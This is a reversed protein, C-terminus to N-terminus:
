KEGKDLKVCALCERVGTDRSRDSADPWCVADFVDGCGPCKVGCLGCIKDECGCACDDAKEGHKPCVDPDFWGCRPCRSGDLISGDEPCSGNAAREVDADSVGPPLNGSM